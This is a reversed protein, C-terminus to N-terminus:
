LTIIKKENNNINDIKLTDNAHGNNFKKRPINSVRFFKPVATSVLVSFFSVSELCRIGLM